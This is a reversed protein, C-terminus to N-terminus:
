PPSEKTEPPSVYHEGQAIINVSDNFLELGGIRM